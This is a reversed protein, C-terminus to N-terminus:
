VFGYIATFARYYVYWNRWCNQHRADMFYIIMEINKERKNAKGKEGEGENRKNKKQQIYQVLSGYIRHAISFSFVQNTEVDVCEDYDSIEVEIGKINKHKQRKMKLTKETHTHAFRKFTSKRKTEDSNIELM